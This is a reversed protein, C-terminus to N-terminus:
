ESQTSVQVLNDLIDDVTSDEVVSNDPQVVNNNDNLINALIDKPNDGLKNKTFLVFLYSLEYSM